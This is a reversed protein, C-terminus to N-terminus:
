PQFIEGSDIHLYMKHKSLTGGCYVFYVPEINFTRSRIWGGVLEFDEYTCLGANILQKTALVFEDEYTLLDDSKKILALMSKRVDADTIEPKEHSLYDTHIWSAIDNGSEHVQYDSIRIWDGKVEKAFVHEGKRVVSRIMADARPYARVNLRESTVYYDYNPEVAPSAEAMQKAPETEEEVEAEEAVPENMMFFYYYAGGGAAALLLIIVLIIVIKKM